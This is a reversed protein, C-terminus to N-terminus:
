WRGGVGNWEVEEFCYDVIGEMGECGVGENWYLSCIGYGVEGSDMCENVDFMGGRGIVEGREKWVFGWM